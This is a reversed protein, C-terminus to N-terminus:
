ALEDIQVWSPAVARIARLSKRQWAHASHTQFLVRYRIEPALKGISVVWFALKQLCSSSLFYLDHLNVRVTAIGDRRVVADVEKLYVGLPGSATMDANGSLVLELERQGPLMKAEAKFGALVLPTVM